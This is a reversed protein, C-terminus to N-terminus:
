AQGSSEEENVWHVAAEEASLNETDHSERALAEPTVDTHAGEDEEILRGVVAEDPHGFTEVPSDTGLDASIEEYLEKVVDDAPDEFRGGRQRTM